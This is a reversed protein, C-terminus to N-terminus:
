RRHPGEQGAAAGAPCALLANALWQPACAHLLDDAICAMTPVRFEARDRVTLHGPRPPRMSGARQALRVGALGHGDAAPHVAVAVHAAQHEQVDPVVRAHQLHTHTHARQLLAPCPRARSTRMAKSAAAGGVIRRGGRGWWERGGALLGRWWAGWGGECTTPSGWVCGSALLAADLSRPSHTTHMLPSSRTRLSGLGLSGVPWTLSRGPAAPVPAAAAGIGTILALPSGDAPPLHPPLLPRAPPALRVACAPSSAAALRRAPLRHGARPLWATDQGPCGPPTRVQAVLRCRTRACAAEGDGGEGGPYRPHRAQGARTCTSSSAVSTVTSLV